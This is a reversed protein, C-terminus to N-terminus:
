WRSLSLFRVRDRKEGGNWIWKGNEIGLGNLMKSKLIYVNRSVGFDNLMKSKRNQCKNLETLKATLYFYKVGKYRM